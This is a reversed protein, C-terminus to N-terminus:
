MIKNNIIFVLNTNKKVKLKNLIILKLEGINFSKPIM